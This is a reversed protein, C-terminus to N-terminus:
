FLSNEFVVFLINRLSSFRRIRERFIFSKENELTLFLLLVFYFQFEKPILIIAFEFLSSNELYDNWISLHVKKGRRLWNSRSLFNLATFSAFPLHFICIEPFSMWAFAKNSIFRSWTCEDWIAAIIKMAHLNVHYSLSRLIATAQWSYVFFFIPPIM